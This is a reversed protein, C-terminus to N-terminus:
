VTLIGPHHSKSSAAGNSEYVRTTLKGLDTAVIKHYDSIDADIAAGATWAIGANAVFVDLRGNLEEVNANVAKTVGVEDTM